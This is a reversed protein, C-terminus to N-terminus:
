TPPKRMPCRRRSRRLRRPPRRKLGTVFTKLTMEWLCWLVRFAFCEIVHCVTHQVTCLVCREIVICVVCLFVFVAFVACPGALWSSTM